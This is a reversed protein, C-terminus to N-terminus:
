QPAQSPTKAKAPIASVGGDKRSGSRPLSPRRTPRRAFLERRRACILKSYQKGSFLSYSRSAIISAMYAEAGCAITIIALLGLGEALALMRVKFEVHYQMQNVFNDIAAVFQETNDTYRRPTRDEIHQRMVQWQGLVEGYTRRLSAPTIWRQTEQLEEAHLTEEFQSLRGLVSDGREIEYAMRYAQMRLSGSLNIAKADPVSYFLTVMAVLAILSAMFLILVMARGIASSVSHVRFRKGM